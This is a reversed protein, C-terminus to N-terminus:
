SLVTELQKRMEYYTLSTKSSRQELCLQRLINAHHTGMFSVASSPQKVVKDCFIDGTGCFDRGLCSKDCESGLVCVSYDHGVNGSDYSCEVM